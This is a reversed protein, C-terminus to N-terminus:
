KGASALLKAADDAGAASDTSGATNSSGFNLLEDISSVTTAAAAKPEQAYVDKLKLLQGNETTVLEVTGAIPQGNFFKRSSNEWVNFSVQVANLFDRYKESAEEAKGAAELGVGDILLQKNRTNSMAIASNLKVNYIWKRLPQGDRVQPEETGAKMVDVLNGQSTVHTAINQGVHGTNITQRSKIFSMVKDKTFLITQTTNV